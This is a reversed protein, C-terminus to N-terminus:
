KKGYYEEYIQILLLPEINYDHMFGRMFDDVDVAVGFYKTGIGKFMKHHFLKYIRSNSTVIPAGTVVNVIRAIELALKHFTDSARLTSLYLKGEANIFKGLWYVLNAVVEDMQKYEKDTM